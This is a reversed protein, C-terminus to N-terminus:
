WFRYQRMLRREIGFPCGWGNLGIWLRQPSKKSKSEIGFPCGWGNLRRCEYYLMLLREPCTNELPELFSGTKPSICFLKYARQPRGAGQPAVRSAVSLSHMM